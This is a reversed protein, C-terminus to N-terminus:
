NTNRKQPINCIEIIHSWLDNVKGRIKRTNSMYIKCHCDIKYSSAQSLLKAVNPSGIDKCLIGNVSVLICGKRLGCKYAQDMKNLDLIKSGKKCNKIIVGAYSDTPFDILVSHDKFVKCSSTLCVTQRCVPCAINQRKIWKWICSECMSHECPYVKNTMKEFCIACEM